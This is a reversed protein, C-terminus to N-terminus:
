GMFWYIIFTGFEIAAWTIGWCAAISIIMVFKSIDDHGKIM